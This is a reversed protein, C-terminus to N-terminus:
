ATLGDFPLRVMYEEKTCTSPICTAMLNYPLALKLMGKVNAMHLEPITVRVGLEEEEDEEEDYGEGM